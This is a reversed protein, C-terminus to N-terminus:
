EFGKAKLFEFSRKLCEFPDLDYCFDQEVLMFETGAAEAKQFVSDFNINGEGLYAMKQGYGCDKLHICPVRGSLRELWAAPDGGGAQIWYTDLTVGVEDPSFREAIHDMICRGDIKIFESAHNHYMFYKGNEQITKAVPSYTDVLEQLAVKPDEVDFNWYGLGIHKCGFVDHDLAVAKPDATLKAPPVHTLVCQLDNKLLEEKLWAPDFDCSGSVQVIKYGIDAVKKLTEAFDPLTQCSGRVTYLQAGIRM